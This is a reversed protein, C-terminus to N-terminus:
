VSMSDYVVVKSWLHSCDAVFKQLLPHDRYRKQDEVSKFVMLESVDYSNDVVDRKETAAPVGVHLQQIVDIAKLAKLGAILKDRDAKDGPNKLWFFVQHFLMPADPAASAPTALTAGAVLAGSILVRRDFSSM